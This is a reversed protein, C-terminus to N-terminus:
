KKPAEADVLTLYRGVFEHPEGSLVLPLLNCSRRLNLDSQREVAKQYDARAENLQSEATGTTGRVSDAYRVTQLEDIRAFLAANRALWQQHPAELTAVTEPFTFNKM